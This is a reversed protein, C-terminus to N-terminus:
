ILREDRAASPYLPTIGLLESRSFQHIRIPPLAKLSKIVADDFQRGVLPCVKQLLGAAAIRVHTLFHFREELTLFLDSLKELLCRNFDQNLHIASAGVYVCGTKVQVVSVIQDSGNNGVSVDDPFVDSRASRTVHIACLM